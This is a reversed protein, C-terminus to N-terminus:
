EIGLDMDENGSFDAFVVAVLSVVTCLHFNKQRISAHRATSSYAKQLSSPGADQEGASAVVCFDSSSHIFSVAIHM